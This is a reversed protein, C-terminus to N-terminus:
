KFHDFSMERAFKASKKYIEVLKTKNIPVEFDKCFKVYDGANMNFTEKKIDEFSANRGLMM